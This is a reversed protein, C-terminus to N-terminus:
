RVAATRDAFAPVPPGSASSAAVTLGSWGAVKDHAVKYHIRCAKGAAARIRRKAASMPASPLGTIIAFVGVLDDSFADVLAVALRDVLVALLAAAAGTATSATSSLGAVDPSMM